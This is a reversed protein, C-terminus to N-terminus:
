AQAWHQSIQAILWDADDLSLDHGASSHTHLPCQWHHALAASCAPDVLQDAASNLILVEPIPPRTPAVYSSAARLQRLINRRSVPQQQAYAAWRQALEPHRPYYLQSTLQLIIQEQKLGASHKLLGLLLGLNNSRLRQYFRSYNAVSTNILVLKGIDAPYRRAWEIACMAGLSVALVNFPRTLGALVSQQQCFEAMAGVESLSPEQWRSGNGPFDFLHLRSAPFAQSFQQPFSEWHQSARMLGRLLVWDTM